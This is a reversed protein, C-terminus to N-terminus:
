PAAQEQVEFDQQPDRLGEQVLWKISVAELPARLLLQKPVRWEGEKGRKRARLPLESEKDFDVEFGLERAVERIVQIDLIVLIFLRGLVFDYLAQGSEVLLTFPRYPSWEAKSKFQNLIFMWPEVFDIQEFIDSVRAGSRMAIYAIGEEPFVCSFGQEYAEKICRNFEMEYSIPYTGLAQRRVIPFGRLGELRDTRFFEGLKKLRRVQRASRRDKTRSSKVEILIPDGPALLCLDGYRITNTLDCLLCPLGRSLATRCIAAEHDFGPSNNIFGSGQKPRMNHLNYYTTRLAFRDCHLFAVADGFSKWYYISQRLARSRRAYRQSEQNPEEEQKQRNERIRGEALKIESILLEQLSGLLELDEPNARISSLLETARRFSNRRYGIM